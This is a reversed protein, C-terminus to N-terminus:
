MKNRVQLEPIPTTNTHGQTYLSVESIQEHEINPTIEIESTRQKMELIFLLM